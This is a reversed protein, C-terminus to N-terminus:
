LEEKSSFKNKAVKMASVIGNPEPYFYKYSDRGPNKLSADVEGDPNFFLIRPIYGGDPKYQDGSPEDDDITNLMVFDKSAEEIAKSAIFKPKLSKCAGCWSKHIIMMGPKGSEKIKAQFSDIDAAWDINENWGNSKAAIQSIFVVLLISVLKM